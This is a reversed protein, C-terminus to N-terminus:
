PLLPAIIVLVLFLFANSGSSFSTLGLRASLMYILGRGGEPPTRPFHSRSKPRAELQCKM